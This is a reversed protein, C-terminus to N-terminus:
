KVKKYTRLRNMKTDLGMSNSFDKYKQNYMTIKKRIKRVEEEENGSAKLSDREDKLNRIKTELQRQVQTAEYMTYETGEYEKTELSKEKFEELLKDSYSPRDIGLKIYYIFHKCNWEGIPRKIAEYKNGKYDEFPQENQMKDYEKLTFQRGQMPLHDTACPSHATLEIGDAGFKDGNAKQVAMNVQKVGGLVNMRISSDLRRTYAKKGENDYYLKRVGSQSLQKMTDAMVKNFNEQGTTISTVCRDVVEKYTDTLSLLMPTKNSDLLRMVTTNSLNKFEQATTLEIAKVLKKFEKNEQYPIYPTNTAEYYVKAFETNSKAIEEFLTHIDRISMDNYEQLVYIIQDINAGYKLQQALKRANSPNLERFQEIVKGLEELVYSNYREFRNTFKEIALELKRENM